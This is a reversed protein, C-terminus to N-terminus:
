CNKKTECGPRNELCEIFSKFVDILLRCLAVSILRFPPRMRRCMGRLTEALWAVPRYGDELEIRFSMDNLFTV